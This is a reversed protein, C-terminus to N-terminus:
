GRYICSDKILYDPMFKCNQEFKIFTKEDLIVQAGMM